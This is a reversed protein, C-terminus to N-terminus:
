SWGFWGGAQDVLSTLWSLGDLGDVLRTLWAPLGALVMWVMLWGEGDLGDLGDVLRTM